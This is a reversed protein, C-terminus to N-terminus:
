TGNNKNHIIKPNMIANFVPEWFKLSCIATILIALIISMIAPHDSLIDRGVLGFYLFIFFYHLSYIQLTRGGLRAVAGGGLKKPVLCIVASGIIVAAIYYALRILGGFSYAGELPEYSNRGTLLPRLTYFDDPNMFVATIFGALILFSFIKLATNDFFKVAKKPNTIYGLYFFPFFVILRM